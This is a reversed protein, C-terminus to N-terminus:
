SSHVGPRQQRQPCASSSSHAVERRQRGDAKCRPNNTNRGPQVLCKAEVVAGARFNRLHSSSLPQPRAPMCPPPSKLSQAHCQPHRGYLFAQFPCTPRCVTQWCTPLQSTLTRSTHNHSLDGTNEQAGDMPKQMGFFNQICLFQVSFKWCGTYRSLPPQGSHRNCIHYEYLEHWRLQTCINLLLKKLQQTQCIVMGSAATYMGNACICSSKASKGELAWLQASRTRSVM